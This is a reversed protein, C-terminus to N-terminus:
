GSTKEAILGFSEWVIEDLRASLEKEELNGVCEYTKKALRIIEKGMKSEPDPLPFQEVYQTMFRRRGAYLKNHFSHDYFSEIFTSNGVGAALWLLEESLYHEAIIWYCDGNVISGEEDIWFIPTDAIDRFVLKTASWASPDQPVWIEYWKRGAEVVYSRKELIDRHEELYAKTRPFEELNVTSRRGGNVKHPYIIYKRPKESLARFRHAIHHTTLPKLLEPRKDKPLLNWDSRIFVKDACTKVGVRIKGIDGFIGWTHNKVTLLWSDSSVTAIRWIEGPNKVNNLKGRQVRFNRGDQVRVIGELSLAEIVNGVELDSMQGTEYISTFQAQNLTIGEQKELILVAPLVAVDFLQLRESSKPYNFYVKAFCQRQGIITKHIFVCVYFLQFFFVRRQFFM